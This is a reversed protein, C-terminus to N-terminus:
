INMNRIQIINAFRPEASMGYINMNHIQIINAFRPEASMGYINRFIQIVLYSFIKYYVVYDLKM